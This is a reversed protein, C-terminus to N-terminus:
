FFWVWLERMQGLLERVCQVEVKFHNQDVKATISDWCVTWECKNESVGTMNFAGTIHCPITIIPGPVNWM